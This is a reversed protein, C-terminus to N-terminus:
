FVDNEIFYDLVQQYVTRGEPSKIGSYDIRDFMKKLPRLQRRLSADSPIESEIEAATHVIDILIKTQEHEYMREPSIGSTDKTLLYGTAMGTLFKWM